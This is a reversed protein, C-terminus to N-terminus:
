HVFYRILAQGPGGFGSATGTDTASGGACAEAQAMPAVGSFENTVGFVSPAGEPATISGIDLWSRGGQVGLEPQTCNEAAQNGGGGSFWPLRFQGPIPFTESCGGSVDSPLVGRSGAVGGLVGADGGAFGNGPGGSGAGGGGAQALSSNTASFSFCYGGDGGYATLDLFFGTSSVGLVNTSGGTGGREATGNDAVGVGGEGLSINLRDFKSNPNLITFDVLASGSGGGGGPGYSSSVASCSGGGGGCITIELHTIDGLDALTAVGEHALDPFPRSENVVVEVIHVIDGVLAIEGSRDQVKMVVSTSSGLSSLDFVAGASPDADAYLTFEADSFPPATGNIQDSVLAIIGDKDPVVLTQTTAPSITSCDFFGRKTANIASIITFEDDIFVSPYTPIDTTLAVTGNRDTPASLTRTTNSAVGSLDFMVTSSNDSDKLIAFTDDPFVSRAEIIHSQYLVTGSSNQPIWEVTQMVAIHSANFQLEGRQESTRAGDYLLFDSDSYVTPQTQGEGIVVTCNSAVSIARLQADLSVLSENVARLDRLKDKYANSEAVTRWIGVGTIALLILFTGLLATLLMNAIAGEPRPQLRPQQM